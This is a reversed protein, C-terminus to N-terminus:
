KRSKKRPKKKRRGKLRDIEENLAEEGHKWMIMGFHRIMAAAIEHSCSHKDCSPCYFDDGNRDGWCFCKPCLSSTYHTPVQVFPVENNECYTVIMDIIHDQGFSGTRAGCSLNDICLLMKHKEAYRCLDLIPHLAKKFKAHTRQLQLRLKRREPHRTEKDNIKNNLSKLKAVFYQPRKRSIKTVDGIPPDFTIWNDQSLNLDFGLADQPKYKWNIPVKARGIFILKGNRKDLWGALDKPLFLKNRMLGTPIWYPVKVKAGKIGLTKFELYGEQADPTLDKIVGDEFIISKNPKLVCVRSPLEKNRKHYGVYLRVAHKTASRKQRELGLGLGDLWKKNKDEDKLFAPFKYGSLTKYDLLGDQLSNYIQRSLANVTSNMALRLKDVEQIAIADESSISPDDPQPIIFKVARSCQGQKHWDETFKEKFRKKKNSKKM